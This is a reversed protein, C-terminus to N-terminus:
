YQTEACQFKLCYFSDDARRKIYVKL